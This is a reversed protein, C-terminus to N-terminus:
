RWGVKMNFTQALAIDIIPECTTCTISHQFKHLNTNLVFQRARSPLHIKVNMDCCVGGDLVYSNLSM